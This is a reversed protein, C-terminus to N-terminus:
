FEIEKENDTDGIRMEWIMNIKPKSEIQTIHHKIYLIKTQLNYVFVVYSPFDKIWKNSVSTKLFILKQSFYNESWMPAIWGYIKHNLM